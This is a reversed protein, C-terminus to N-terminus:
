RLRRVHRRRRATDKSIMDIVGMRFGDAGRDLWWRMMQHIPM